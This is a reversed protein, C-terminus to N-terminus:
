SIKRNVFIVIAAGVNLLAIIGGTLIMGLNPILFVGVLLAGLAAGALDASYVSSSLVAYSRKDVKSVTSFQLGTLLGALLAFALLLIYVPIAPWGTIGGAIVPIAIALLALLLQVGIVKSKDPTPIIRGAFWAGGFLGAMFVTFIIGTLHYINGYLIQFAFILMVEATTSTFGAAFLGSSLPKMLMILLVGVALIIGGILWPDQQFMGMWWQIHRFFAVPKFDRNPRADKDLKKMVLDGRMKLQMDNLYNRNVYQTQIEKEQIQRTVPKSYEKASCLFYHKEGPILRIHPFHEKASSYVTSLVGAKEEELYNSYPLLTFSLIGEPSLVSKADEFFSRTYYRNAQLTSPAPVNLIIVDYKKRNERIFQRPDQNFVKVKSSGLGQSFDEALKVIYPNYEVYDIQDVPYKLLEELMGSVGGSVLLVDKVSDPQSMPYHVAEERPVVNKNDFLFQNNLFFNRQEHKKTITIHGHPTDKMKVIEQNQFLFSRAYKEMNLSIGAALIIVAAVWFPYVAKQLGSKRAVWGALALSLFSLLLLIFFSNFLYVLIFNVLVGGAISGVSEFAYAKGTNNQHRVDSFRWALFSFMYGSLLCFPLLLLMVMLAMDTVGIMVGPPFALNKTLNILFATLLPIIGTLTTLTLLPRDSRFKVSYRGLLAGGATLLMWFFLILSIVLENGNFILLFERILIIQSLLGALGLYILLYRLSKDNLSYTTGPTAPEYLKKNNKRFLRGYYDLHWSLHLFGILVLAVGADVHLTNYADLWQLEWKYNVQFTLLIGLVGAIVFAALLLTNWIKRHTPKSIVKLKYLGFTLLYLLLSAAIIQVLHYPQNM